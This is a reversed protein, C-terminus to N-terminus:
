LDPETQRDLDLLYHGTGPVSTLRIFMVGVLLVPIDTM